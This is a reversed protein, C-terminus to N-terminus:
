VFEELEREEAKKNASAGGEYKELEEESFIWSFAPTLAPLWALQTFRVVMLDFALCTRASFHASYNPIKPYRQSFHTLLIRSAGMKLGVEIAQRTTSHRKDRAEAVMDDELTSEHVLLTAGVGADILAQCPQTDGSIVLKYPPLAAPVSSAVALASSAAAASSSSAAAVDSSSSSSSKSDTEVVLGWADNCHRVQVTQVVSLGRPRITPYSAQLAPSNEAFFSSLRNSRDQLESCGVFELWDWLTRPPPASADSSPVDSMSTEASPAAAASASAAVSSSAAVPDLQDEEAIQFACSAYEKLWFFLRRPGIVLLKPVQHPKSADFAWPAVLEMEALRGAPHRSLYRSMWTQKYVSLISLLGLHHDAHIHSIWVAKLDAVLGAVIEHAPRSLGGYRLCLQGYTGEGADLMVGGVPHHMHQLGAESEYGPHFFQGTVNRYKSPIASGTGLFTLEPSLSLPQASLDALISPSPTFDVLPAPSVLPFDLAPLVASAAAANAAAFEAPSEAEILAMVESAIQEVGKGQEQGVRMAEKWRELRGMLAPTSSEALNAQVDSPVNIVAAVHARDLCQNQPPLLHFRLLSHGATVHLPAPFAETITAQIRRGQVDRQAESVVDSETPIRAPFVASNVYGQLKLYNLAASKFVPRPVATTLHCLIHQTRPGFSSLWSKYAPTTLLSLPTLHVMCALPLVAATSSSSSSSSASASASQFKRWAKHNVLADVFAANPCDVLAFKPGPTPLAVCDSPHFTRLEDDVAPVPPAEVEMSSAAVAAPAAAAAESAAGAGSAKRKQQQQQKQPRKKGQVGKASGGIMESARIQVSEGAKLKAYLPGPPIGLAKARSIDFKGPTTALSVIYCVLAPETSTVWESAARASERSQNVCVYSLSGPVRPPHSHHHQHSASPAAAVALAASSTSSPDVSASSSAAAASSQVNLHAHSHVVKVRKSSPVVPECSNTSSAAAAPAVCGSAVSASDDISADVPEVTVNHNHQHAPNQQHWGTNARIPPLCVRQSAILVVEVSLNADQFFAPKPCSSSTENNKEEEEATNDSAPVEFADITMGSRVSVNRAAQLFVKLPGPGHVGVRKLGLDALTILLGLCVDVFCFACFTLM